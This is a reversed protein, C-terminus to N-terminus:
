TIYPICAPCVQVPGAFQHADIEMIRLDTCTTFFMKAVIRASTHDSLHIFGDGKDLGSEIQGCKQFAASEEAVALKFV